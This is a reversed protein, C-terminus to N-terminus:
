LQEIDCVWLKRKGKPGKKSWAVLLIVGDCRKWFKAFEAVKAAELREKESMKAMDAETMEGMIKRRRRNMDGRTCAQVLAIQPPAGLDLAPSRAAVQVPAPPEGPHCALIDGFGWVDIRRGFPMNGFKMFKEVPACQWGEDRLHKLTRANPNSM